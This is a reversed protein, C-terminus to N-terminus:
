LANRYFEWVNKWTIAEIERQTFGAREMERVLHDMGSADVMELPCDIGDFDSGFGIANQAGLECLADIHRVVDDLTAPGDARLFDSYFNIIVWSCRIKLM